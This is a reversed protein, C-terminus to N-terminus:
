LLKLDNRKSSPCLSTRLSQYLGPTWQRKPLLIPRTVRLRCCIPQERGELRCWPLRLSTKKRLQFLPRSMGLRSTAMFLKRWKLRSRGWHKTKFKWSCTRMRTGIWMWRFNDQSLSSNARSLEWGTFNKRMVKSRRNMKWKFKKMNPWKLRTIKRFKDIPARLRSLSFKITKFKSSYLRSKLNLTEKTLKFTTKIGKTRLNLWHRTRVRFIKYIGKIIPRLLPSKKASGWSSAESRWM